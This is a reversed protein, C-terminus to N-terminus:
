DLLRLVNTALKNGCRALFRVFNDVTHVGTASAVHHTIFNASLRVLKPASTSFNKGIRMALVLVLVRLELYLYRFTVFSHVAM